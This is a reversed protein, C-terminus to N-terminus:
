CQDSDNCKRIYGTPSYHRRTINQLASVPSPRMGSVRLILPIAQVSVPSAEEAEVFLLWEIKNPSLLLSFLMCM